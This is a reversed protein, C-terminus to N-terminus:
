TPVQMGISEFAETITSWVEVKYEYGEISQFMALASRATKLAEELKGEKIDYFSMTKLGKETATVANNVAIEGFETLSSPPYKKLMEPYVKIVDSVKHTPYWATIVLFPM